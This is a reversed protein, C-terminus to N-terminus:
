APFGRRSLDASSLESDPIGLDMALAVEAAATDHSHDHGHGM